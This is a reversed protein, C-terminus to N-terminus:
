QSQNHLHRWERAINERRGPRRRRSEDLCTSHKQGGPADRGPFNCRGSPYHGSRRRHQIFKRISLRTSFRGSQAGAGSVRVKYNAGSALSLTPTFIIRPNASLNAGLGACNSFNDFSLQIGGTCPGLNSNQTITAADAQATFDLILSANTAVDSAGDAPISTVAFPNSSYILNMLWIAPSSFADPSQAPGAEGQLCGAGAAASVLLAM